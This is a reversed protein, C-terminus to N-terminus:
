HRLVAARPNWGTHKELELADAIHEWAAAKYNQYAAPMLNRGDQAIFLGFPFDEGLPTSIVDLGDTESAGDIDLVPNATVVFSGLYRNGGRRDYVAYSDNGQSSVILYGNGSEGYYIAVGEFDDKVAPNEAISAIVRGESDGDATADFLWLAEDEEGVYLVGYEDDAACGEPQSPVSFERVLDTRVRGNGSDHLQWQRYLGSSDNVFVYTARTVPHQYMCAGYTDAMNTAQLGDAVETLRGSAPDVRYINISADTRNSATVLDVQEGGLAFNYRLDVNNIQGDELYQIVNGRLDYVYLGGQKNTGILTSLSPDTPHVWIAPDDAADGPTAVPATQLGAQVAVFGARAPPTADRSIRQQLGLAAEVDRWAVLKYNSASEENDDDTAVLLGASFSGTFDAASALLGGAEEVGDVAGEGQLSARSLLTYDNNMDYFHIRGTAADSAMLLAMGAPSRYVALGGVEETIAGFKVIDIIEPVVETEVDANFRWIGVEKESVFLSHSTSDTTCFGAESAVALDRVHRAHIDGAGADRLWWQELKGSGKTLFIYSQKDLLSQYACLGEYSGELNIGALERRSLDGTVPDISFVAVAPSHVDLAVLLPMTGAESAFAPLVDLGKIEGETEMVALRMGNMDYTEVGSTGATGYIRSSAPAGTNVWVAVANAEHGAPQTEASVPILAIDLSLSNAGAETMAVAAVGEPSEGGCGSALASAICALLVVVRYKIM